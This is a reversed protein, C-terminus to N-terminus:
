PLIDRSGATFFLSPM